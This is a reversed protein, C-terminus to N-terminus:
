ELRRTSERVILESLLVHQRPETELNEIQESLFQFTLRSQLKANHHM